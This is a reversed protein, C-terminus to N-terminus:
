RIRHSVIYLIAVFKSIIALQSWSVLNFFCPNIIYNQLITSFGKGEVILEDDNKLQYSIHKQPTEELILCPELTFVHPNWNSERNINNNAENNSTVIIQQDGNIECSDITASLSTVSLKLNTNRNTFVFKRTLQRQNHVPQPCKILVEEISVIENNHIMIADVFLQNVAAWFLLHENILPSGNTQM